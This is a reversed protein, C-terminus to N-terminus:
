TKKQCYELYELHQDQCPDKLELTELEKPLKKWRKADAFKQYSLFNSKADVWQRKVLQSKGDNYYEMPKKANLNSLFNGVDVKKKLIEALVFKNAKYVQM